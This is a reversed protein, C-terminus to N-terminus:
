LADRAFTDRGPRNSPSLGVELLLNDLYSSFSAREPDSVRMPEASHEAVSNGHRPTKENPSPADTLAGKVGLPVDLPPAAKVLVAGPNGPETGSGTEPEPEEREEKNELSNMEYTASDLNRDTAQKQATPSAGNKLAVFLPVEAAVCIALKIQGHNHANPESRWLYGAEVLTKLHVRITRACYGLDKAINVTWTPWIGKKGIRAVIYNLTRVCGASLRRELTPALSQRRIYRGHFSIPRNECRTKRNVYARKPRPESDDHEVKAKPPKKTGGKTLASWAEYDDVSIQEALFLRSVVSLPPEKPSEALAVTITPHIEVVGTM